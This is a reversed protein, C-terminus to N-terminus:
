FCEKGSRPLVCERTFIIFTTFNVFQFLSLVKILDSNNTKVDSSYHLLLCELILVVKPLNHCPPAGWDGCSVEHMQTM